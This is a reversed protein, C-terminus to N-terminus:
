SYNKYLIFKFFIKNSIVVQSICSLGSDYVDSKLKFSKTIEKYINQSLDAKVKRIIKKYIREMLVCINEQIFTLFKLLYLFNNGNSKTDENSVRSFALIKVEKFEIVSSKKLYEIDENTNKLINYFTNLVNEIHEQFDLSSYDIIAYMVRFSSLSLSLNKDIFNGLNFSTYVLCDLIKLYYPSLASSNKNLNKDGYFKILNLLVTCLNIRVQSSFIVESKLCGEELNEIKSKSDIEYKSEKIIKMFLPLYECLMSKEIIYPCYETIKCLLWSSTEAVLNSKDALTKIFNKFNYKLLTSIKDKHPTELCCSLAILSSYRKIEDQAFFNNESYVLLKELYTSDTLQILLCLIYACAKSISWESIENIKTLNSLCFNYIENAYKSYIKLSQINALNNKYINSLDLEKDGIECWVELILLINKESIHSNIKNILEGQEYLSLILNTLNVVNGMHKDLNFYFYNTFKILIQSHLELIKAISKIQTSQHISNNSTQLNSNSLINFVLSFILNLVEDYPDFSVSIEKNLSIVNLFCKLCEIVININTNILPNIIQKQINFKISNMIKEKFISFDFKVGKIQGSQMSFEEVIFSLTELSSAIYDYNDSTNAVNVLIEVLELPLKGSIYSEMKTLNAILNGASRRIKESSSALLCLIRNRIENRDFNSNIEFWKPINENKIITNKLILLAMTRNNESQKSNMSISSSENCVLFSLNLILNEYPIQNIIYEAQERISNDHNQLKSMLLDFNLNENQMKENTNM